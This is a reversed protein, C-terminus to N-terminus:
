STNSRIYESLSAVSAKKKKRTEKKEQEKLDEKVKELFFNDCLFVYGDLQAEFLNEKLQKVKLM